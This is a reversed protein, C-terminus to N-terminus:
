TSAHGNTYTTRVDAYRYGGDKDYFPPSDISRFTTKDGLVNSMVVIDARKCAESGLYEGVTVRHLYEFDELSGRNTEVSTIMRDLRSQTIMAHTDADIGLYDINTDYAYLETPFTAPGIEIVRLDSM